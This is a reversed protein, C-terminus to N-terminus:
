YDKVENDVLLFINMDNHQPIKVEFKMILEDREKLNKIEDRFIYFVVVANVIWVLTLLRMDMPNVGYLYKLIGQISCFQTTIILWIYKRNYFAFIVFMIETLFMYREHMKPLVFPVIFASLTALSILTNQTIKLDKKFGYYYVFCMLIIAAFYIASAALETNIFRNGFLMWINPLLAVIWKWTDTQSFYITLLRIFNGGALLAPIISVFYVVPIWILMRLRIKRKLILIALLPVFFISQLKFAFSVGFMIMALRDDGKLIYYLSMILFCVYIVDCQGWAASNLVVTPLCFTLAFATASNFSYKSENLKVIKM